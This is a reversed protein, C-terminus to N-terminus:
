KLAPKKQHVLAKFTQFKEESVEFQKRDLDDKAVVKDGVDFIDAINLGAKTCANAVKNLIKEDKLATEKFSIARKKEFFSDFLDGLLEQLANLSDEDQPVSFSDATVFLIRGKKGVVELSKTFEGHRALNEYQPMVHGIIVSENDAIAQKLKAMQAKNAILEDVTKQVTETTSAQKKTGTSSKKDASKTAIRDFANM